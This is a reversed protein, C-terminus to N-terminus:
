QLLLGSFTWNGELPKARQELLDSKWGSLIRLYTLTCNHICYMFRRMYHIVDVATSLEEV